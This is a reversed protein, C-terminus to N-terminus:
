QSLFLLVRILSPYKFWLLSLFWLHYSFIKFFYTWTTATLSKHYLIFLQPITRKFINKLSLSEVGQSFFFVGCYYYMVCTSYVFFVHNVVVFSLWQTVTNQPVQKDRWQTIPNHIKQQINFINDKINQKHARDGHGKTNREFM